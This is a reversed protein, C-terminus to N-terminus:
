DFYCFRVPIEDQDAALEQFYGQPLEQDGEFWKESIQSRKIWIEKTLLLPLYKKKM